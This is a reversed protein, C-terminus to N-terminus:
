GPRAHAREGRRARVGLVRGVRRAVVRVREADGPDDEVRGARLRGRARGADEDARLRHARGGDEDGLVAASGPRSDGALVGLEDRVVADERGRLLREVDGVHVTLRLERKNFLPASDPICLSTREVASEARHPLVVDGRPVPRVDRGRLRDGVTLIHPVTNL